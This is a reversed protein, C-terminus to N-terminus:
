PAAEVRMCYGISRVTHILKVPHPEDIKARLHRIYVDVINTLGHFSQDWVRELIMARSVVRGAHLALLELLAFEKATLKVEGGARKVTHGVCDLELDAVRLVDARVVAGRRLLAKVRVTLEECAFPKTLFQDAGAEFSAVRDALRDRATLVLVPVERQTRRLSRILETGDLSPLGLDVILVDFSKARARALGQKGDRISEVTFGEAELAGAVIAAIREDDEVVLAHM